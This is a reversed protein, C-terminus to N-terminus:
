LRAERLQLALGGDIRGDDHNITGAITTRGERYAHMKGHWPRVDMGFGAIVRELRRPALDARIKLFLNLTAFGFLGSPNLGIALM